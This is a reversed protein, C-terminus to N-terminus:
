PQLYGTRWLGSSEVQLKSISFYRRTSLAGPLFQPNNKRKLQRIKNQSLKEDLEPQGFLVMQLLKSQGTELNSLLRLEELTEFPMSQAEEVFMVVQRNQAHKNLVHGLIKQMVELKSSVSTTGLELEHAIVHFINDPSLSPNAIYVIDVQGRLTVELMRCLMTKGSGVEGVVKIIGEGSKIAFELAGLVAGRQSGEFFLTTDPTIKFPPRSLGFHELYM